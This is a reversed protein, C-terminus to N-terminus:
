LVGKSKMLQTRNTMSNTVMKHTATQVTQGEKVRLMQKHVLAKRRNKAGMETQVHSKTRQNPQTKNPIQINHMQFRLMQTSLLFKILMILVKAEKAEKFMLLIRLYALMPSNLALKMKLGEVQVRLGRVLLNQMQLVRSVRQNKARQHGLAKQDLVKQDWVEM